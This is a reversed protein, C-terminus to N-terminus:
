SVLPYVLKAGSVKKARLEELGQQINELGKDRVQIPHPKILGKESLLNLRATWYAGFQALDDDQKRYHPEPWAVEQGLLSPGM